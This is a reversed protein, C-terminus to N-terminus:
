NFDLTDFNDEPIVLPIDYWFDIYTKQYAKLKRRYSNENAKHEDFL